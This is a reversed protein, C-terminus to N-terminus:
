RVQERAQLLILAIRGQVQSLHSIMMKLVVALNVIKALDIPEQVQYRTTNM